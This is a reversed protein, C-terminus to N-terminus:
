RAIGKGHVYIVCDPSLKETTEVLSQYGAHASLPIDVYHINKNKRNILSVLMHENKHILGVKMVCVKEKEIVEEIYKRSTSGEKMMGSSALIIDNNMIKESYDLDSNGVSINKGLINQQTSIQYYETIRAALGDILIKAGTEKAMNSLLLAVEQIQGAASCPIIIKNGYQYQKECLAIFIKEYEKRKLMETKMGYTTETIFIDIKKQSRELIDEVRFGEAMRQNEVMYDGTYVIRTKGKWDIDMMVSGMIHGNPLFTVVVGGVEISSFAELIHVCDLAIEPSSIRILQRTISTMFINQKRLENMSGYHDIHAHSIFVAAIKPINLEKFIEKAYIRTVEKDTIECGCDLVIATDEDFIIHMSAAVEKPKYSYIKLGQEQYVLEMGNKQGNQIKENYKRWINWQIKEFTIVERKPISDEEKWLQKLIPYKESVKQYLKTKKIEAKIETKVEKKIEENIEQNIEEKIEKKRESKIVEKAIERQKEEQLLDLLEILENDYYKDFEILYYDSIEYDEFYLAYLATHKWYIDYQKCLQFWDGRHKVFIQNAIQFYQMQMASMMFYFEAQGFQSFYEDALYYVLEYKGEEFYTCLLEPLVMTYHNSFYETEIPQIEEVLMAAGWMRDM